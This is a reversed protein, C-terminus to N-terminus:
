YTSAKLLRPNDIWSLLMLQKKIKTTKFVAAVRLGLFYQGLHFTKFDEKIVYYDIQTM